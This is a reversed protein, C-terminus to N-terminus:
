RRILKGWARQYLDLLSHETSYVPLQSQVADAATPASSYLQSFRWTTVAGRGFRIRDEVTLPPLIGSVLELGRGLVVCSIKTGDIMVKARVIRRNTPSNCCQGPGQNLVVAPPPSAMMPM